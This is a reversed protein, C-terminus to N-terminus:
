RAVAGRASLTKPRPGVGQFGRRLLWEAPCDFPGTALAKETAPAPKQAEYVTGDRGAPPRRGVYALDQAETLWSTEILPGTCSAPSDNTSKVGSQPARRCLGRTARLRLSARVRDAVEVQLAATFIKWATRLSIFDAQDTEITTM